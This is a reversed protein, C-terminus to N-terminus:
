FSMLRLVLIGGGGGVTEFFSGKVQGLCIRVPTIINWVSQCSISTIIVPTSKKFLRYEQSRIGFVLTTNTNPLSKWFHFFYYFSFIWYKARTLINGKYIHLLRSFHKSYKGTNWAPSRTNTEGEKLMQARKGVRQLETTKAGQICTKTKTKWYRFRCYHVLSVLPIRM